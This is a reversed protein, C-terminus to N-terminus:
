TLLGECETNVVVCSLLSAVVLRVAILIYLTRVPKAEVLQLVAKANTRETAAVSPSTPVAVAAVCAQAAPRLLSSPLARLSAVPHTETNGYDVFYVQVTEARAECSIIRARYYEKEYTALCPMGPCPPYVLPAVPTECLIEQISDVLNLNKQLHFFVFCSIGDHYAVLVKDEDGIKIDEFEPQSILDLFSHTSAMFAVQIHVYTLREKEVYRSVTAVLSPGDSELVRHFDKCIKADPHDPLGELRTRISLEPIAVLDPTILFVSDFSVKDNEGLDVLFVMVKDSAPPQSVIARHLRRDSSRKVIVCAGVALESIPCRVVVKYSRLFMSLRKADDKQSQLQITFRWPGREVALVQCTDCTGPPFIANKFKPPPPKHVCPLSSVVGFSSKATQSGRFFSNNLNAAPPQVQQTRSDSKSNADRWMSERVAYGHKALADTLLMGSGAPDLPYFVSPKGLERFVRGCVDAGLLMENIALVSAEPWAGAPDFKVVVRSNSIQWTPSGPSSSIESVFQTLCQSNNDSVYYPGVLVSSPKILSHPVECPHRKDAVAARSSTLLPPGVDALCLVECVPEIAQVIGPCTLLCNVNINVHWQCRDIFVGKVAKEKSFIGTIKFRHLGPEFDNKLKVFALVIQGVAVQSTLLCDLKFQQVLETVLQNEMADHVANLKKRAGNIVMVKSKDGGFKVKFDRSYGDVIELM